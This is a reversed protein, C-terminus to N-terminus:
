RKKTATALIADITASTATGIVQRADLPGFYRGDFSHRDDALVLIQHDDIRHCGNWQPLLRGSTDAPPARGADHGNITIIAGSRCVLDPALAAVPKILVASAPLYGRADALSRMPEPLRLAALEGRAPSRAAIFYLGAPVSHSGNWAFVPASAKPWTVAGIGIAISVALPWDRRRM